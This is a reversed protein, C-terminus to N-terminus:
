KANSYLEVSLFTIIGLLTLFIPLLAKQPQVVKVLMVIESPMVL